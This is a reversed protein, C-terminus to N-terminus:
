LAGAQAARLQFGLGLDGFNHQHTRENEDVENEEDSFLNTDSDLGVSKSDDSDLDDDDEDDSVDEVRARRSYNTWAPEIETVDSELHLSSRDLPPTPNVPSDDVDMRSQSTEADDMQVPSSHTHGSSTDLRNNRSKRPSFVSMLKAVRTSKINLHFSKQKLHRNRTKATVMRGSLSWRSPGDSM